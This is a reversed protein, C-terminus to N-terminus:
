GELWLCIRAGKKGLVGICDPGDLFAQSWDLKAQRDLTSLFKLRIQEWV